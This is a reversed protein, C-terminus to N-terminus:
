NGCLSTIHSSLRIEYLISKFRKICCLQPFNETKMYNIVHSFKFFYYNIQLVNIFDTM